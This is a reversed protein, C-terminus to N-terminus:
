REDEQREDDQAACGIHEVITDEMHATTSPFDMLVDHQFGEDHERRPHQAIKAHLMQRKGDYARDIGGTGHHHEYAGQEEKTLSQVHPLPYTHRQSDDGEQQETTAALLFANVELVIMPDIHNNASSHQSCDTSEVVFEEHCRLTLASYPEVAHHHLRPIIDVLAEHHQSHQHQQPPRLVLLGRREMPVPSDNADAHKERCGVEHVEIGQGQWCCHDADDRHHTAAGDDDGKHTASHEETLLVQLCLGNVQGEDEQTHDEQIYAAPSESMLM